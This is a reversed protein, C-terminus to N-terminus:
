GTDPEPDYESTGGAALRTIEAVITRDPSWTYNITLALVHIDALRKNAVALLERLEVNEQELRAIAGIAGEVTSTM